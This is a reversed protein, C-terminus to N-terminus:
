GLQGVILKGHYVRAGLTNHLDDVNDNTVKGCVVIEIQEGAIDIMEKLLGLGSFATDAKGSTLVSNVTGLKILKVLEKKSESCTDIARHITTNLPEALVSLESIRSIDLHKEDSSTVGFVVGKVGVKKCFDISAKMMNLEQDNYCFGDPVPRIMVHIPINVHKKAEEILEMSPTLGDRILDACLEIRDAGQREAAKCQDLTEVCAEKLYETLRIM